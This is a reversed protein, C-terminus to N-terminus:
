SLFLALLLLLQPPNISNVPQFTSLSKKDAETCYETYGARSAALLEYSVAKKM